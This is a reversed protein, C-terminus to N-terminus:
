LRYSRSAKTVVQTQQLNKQEWESKWRMVWEYRKGEKNQAYEILPLENDHPDKVMSQHSFGKEELFNLFERSPQAYNVLGALLCPSGDLSIELAQRIPVEFSPDKGLELAWNDLIKEKNSFSSLQYVGLEILQSYINARIEPTYGKDWNGHNYIMLTILDATDDGEISAYNVQANAGSKLAIPALPGLFRIIDIIWQDNSWDTKQEVWPTFKKVIQDTDLKSLISKSKVLQTQHALCLAQLADEPETASFLKVVSEFSYHHDMPPKNKKPSVLHPQLTVFFSTGSLVDVMNEIVNKTAGPFFAFSKAFEIKDKEDWSLGGLAKFLCEMAMIEDSHYLLNNDEFLKVFYSASKELNLSKFHNYSQTNAFLKMTKWRPCCEPEDMINSIMPLDSATKVLDSWEASGSNHTSGLLAQRFREKKEPQLSSLFKIAYSKENFDNSKLLNKQIDEFSFVKWDSPTPPNDLATQVCSLAGEQLWQIAEEQSQVLKEMLRSQSIYLAAGDTFQHGLEYLQPHDFVIARTALLAWSAPTELQPLDTDFSLQGIALAELNILLMNELDTAKFSNKELLEPSFCIDRLFPTKINM